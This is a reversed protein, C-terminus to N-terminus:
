GIMLSVEEVNLLLVFEFKMGLKKLQNAMQGTVLKDM